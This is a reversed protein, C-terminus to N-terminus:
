GRLREVVSTPAIRRGDAAEDTDQIAALDGRTLTGFAANTASEHKRLRILPTRGATGCGYIRTRGKEVLHDSVLRFVQPPRTEQRPTSTLVLFSFDVRTAELSRGRPSPPPPVSSEGRHALPSAVPPATDHCWDRPNLRAPCPAESLCPALVQLDGGEVLKDRVALLLRSTERLAPEVLVVVGAPALQDAMWRSVLRALLAARKEEPAGGHLENLLHAAVILDFRPGLWPLGDERELDAVVTAQSPVRDVSVLEPARGRARFFTRVTEGAAGTGAGLDLCRLPPPLAVAAEDGYIRALIRGVARTTRPAIEREYEERRGPDALYPTGILQREGVFGEHLRLSRPPVRPKNAGV